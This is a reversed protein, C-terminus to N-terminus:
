KVTEGGAEGKGEGMGGQVVALGVRERVGLEWVPWGPCDSSYVRFIVLLSSGRVQEEEVKLIVALGGLLQFPPTSAVGRM